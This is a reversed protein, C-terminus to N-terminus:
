INTGISFGFVSQPISGPHTETNVSAESLFWHYLYHPLMKSNRLNDLSYKGPGTFILALLIALYLVILERHDSGQGFFQFYRIFTWAVFVNIAAILAAWRTALGFIILVSCISDSLFAFLFSSTAGIHIPDPFHVAM